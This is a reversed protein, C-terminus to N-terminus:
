KRRKLKKSPNEYMSDIRKNMHINLSVTAALLAMFMAVNIGVVAILQQYM